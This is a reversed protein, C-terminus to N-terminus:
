IGISRKRLDGIGFGLDWISFIGFGLDWISFIGFGLDRIPVWTNFIIIFKKSSM